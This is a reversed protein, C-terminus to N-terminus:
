HWMSTNNYSRRWHFSAKQSSFTLCIQSFDHREHFNKQTKFLKTNLSMSVPPLSEQIQPAKLATPQVNHALRVSEIRTDVSFLGYLSKKHEKGSMNPILKTSFMLAHLDKKWCCWFLRPFPNTRLREMRYSIYKLSILHPIKFVLKQMIYHDHRMVYLTNFHCTLLSICNEGRIHLM